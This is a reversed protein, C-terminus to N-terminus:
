PLGGPREIEGMLRIAEAVMPTFEGPDIPSPHRDLPQLLGADVLDDLDLHDPPLKALGIVHVQDRRRHIGSVLPRWCNFCVPKLEQEVRKLGPRCGGLRNREAPPCCCVPGIPDVRKSRPRTAWDLIQEDRGPIDM